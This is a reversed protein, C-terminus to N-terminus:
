KPWMMWVFFDRMDKVTHDNSVGFIKFVARNYDDCLNYLRHLITPLYINEIKLKTRQGDSLKKKTGL